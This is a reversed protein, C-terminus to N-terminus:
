ALRFVFTQQGIGTSGGGDTRVFKAGASARYIKTPMYGVNGWNDGTATPARYWLQTADGSASIDYDAGQGSRVCLMVVLYLGDEEVTYPLGYAVPEEYGGWTEGCCRFLAM